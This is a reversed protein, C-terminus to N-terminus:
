PATDKRAADQRAVLAFSAPEAEMPLALGEAAFRRITPATANAIRQASAAELPVRAAAAVAAIREASVDEPM